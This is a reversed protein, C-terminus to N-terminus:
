RSYGAGFDTQLETGRRSVFHRRVSPSITYLRVINTAAITAQTANTTPPHSECEPVGTAAVPEGVAVVVGTGVFVVVGGVVERSPLGM